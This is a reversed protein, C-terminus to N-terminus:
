SEPFNVANVFVTKLHNRRAWRAVCVRQEATAGVRFLFLLRKESADQFLEGVALGCARGVSSLEDDSHLRATVCGSLALSAAILAIIRV